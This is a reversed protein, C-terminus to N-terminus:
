PRSLRLPEREYRDKIVQIGVAAAYAGASSVHLIADATNHDFPFLGVPRTDLLAWVGTAVLSVVAALAFLFAWDRRLSFFLGPLFLAFGSLAHWGNFDVGLVLQSSARAGTAFDPNAILGATSWALLALSLGFVAVQIFDPRRAGPPLKEVRGRM